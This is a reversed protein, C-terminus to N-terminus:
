PCVHQYYSVLMLPVISFRHHREITTQACTTFFSDFCSHLCGCMEIVLPISDNDLARENYSRTKEQVVMIMVRTMMTSTQQVMDTRTSDIIVVDM